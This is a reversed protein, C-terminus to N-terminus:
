KLEVITVGTDGENWNGLRQSKVLTHKKLHRGVERRLVGTGKGHIIGVHTFGALAADSLYQDVADLAEEATMGRLDVENSVDRSVSFRTSARGSNKEPGQTSKLDKLPVRLRMGSWQVLVRGSKDPDSVIQGRGSHGTWVVWDGNQCPRDEVPPKKKRTLSKVKKKQEKLVAKSQKITEAAAQSERIERVTREILANAEKLAEEAEQVTREVRENGSKELEDLKSQYLAVLGALRSENIEAESAADQSRQLTEELHLILRDLKGREEGMREKAQHVVDHPIGLREAIEFAYSSGPLGPQFRYTPRLTEQDFAMSGNEIGPQEHAFVKLSGMHTTAITLGGNETLTLLISEALASGEAPDTASGIEDLLVLTSDDLNELILKLRAIHSSFTSLDQEISQQDGIDAFIRSFIPMVSGQKAPVHMGHSHMLSLLGVTKLAVTKGGANPGTIILTRTNGGLNMSLPVVNVNEKLQLIPHRAEKLEFVPDSAIDAAVGKLRSSLRGRAMFSDLEAGIDLNLAIEGQHERFADTLAKLIREIEQREQSKLRRIENNMELVDLPEIYLTAGTASQDVVMGKIRSRHGEKLPIVLRGDRFALADEQLYGKASLEGLVTDLRRRAKNETKQIERRVRSLTDSAKDKVEGQDDIVKGIQKELEPLPELGEAVKALQLYKEPHEKFYTKILRVMILFRHCELFDKPDLFAGFVEARKIQPRLDAFDSLPFADGFELLNKADTVRTLEPRLTDANYFPPLDRIREKGMASSALDILKELITEFELIHSADSM